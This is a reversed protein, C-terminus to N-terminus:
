DGELLEAQRYVRDMQERFDELTDFVQSGGHEAKEIAEDLVDRADALSKVFREERAKELRRRAHRTTM